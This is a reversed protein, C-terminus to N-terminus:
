VLYGRLWGAPRLLRLALIMVASFVIGAGSKLLDYRSDKYMSTIAM